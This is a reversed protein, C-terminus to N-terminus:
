SAIQHDAPDVQEAEFASPELNALGNKFGSAPALRTRSQLLAQTPARELCYTAVASDRGPHDFAPDNTQLVFQPDLWQSRVAISRKM